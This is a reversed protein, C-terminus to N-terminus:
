IEAFLIGQKGNICALSNPLMSITEARVRPEDSEDVSIGRTNSGMLFSSTQSINTRIRIKHYKGLHESWKQSSTGSKHSFLVITNVPGTMEAFLNEGSNGRSYLSSVFDSHSIAYVRDRLLDSVKNFKSLPIGDILIVFKQGLSQIFMLHNLILSMIYDNNGTGVDIAIVGNIKLMKKINSTNPTARGFVNDAQRNLKNLFTRVSDIETSGAMYDRSINDFEENTVAESSKLANLEDMLRVLPYAALNQFTVKGEVRLLMELLSRLLAEASPSASDDPMSEYLLYAVDDVPLARFADYYKQGRAIFEYAISNDVIMNELERNGSHLAIVPINAQQSKRVFPMTATVRESQNGGSIIVNEPLGSEGWIYDLAPTNSSAQYDYIDNETSDNSTLLLQTKDLHPLALVARSKFNADYTEQYIRQIDKKTRANNILNTVVNATLIASGFWGM